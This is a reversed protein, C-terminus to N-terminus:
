RRSRRDLSALLADRGAPLKLKQGPTRYLDRPWITALLVTKSSDDPWSGQVTWWPHTTRVGTVFDQQVVVILTPAVQGLLPCNERGPVVVHTFFEWTTAYSRSFV